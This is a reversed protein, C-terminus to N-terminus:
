WFNWIHLPPELGCCRPLARGWPLRPLVLKYRADPSLAGMPTWPLAGPWRDRPLLEGLASHSKTKLREIFAAFKGIKRCSPFAFLDSIQTKKAFLWPHGPFQPLASGFQHAQTGSGPRFGGSRIHCLFQFLNWVPHTYNTPCCATQDYDYLAQTTMERGGCECWHRWKWLM